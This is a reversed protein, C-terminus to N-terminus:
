LISEGLAKEIEQRAMYFCEAIRDFSEKEHDQWMDPPNNAFDGCYRDIADCEARLIAAGIARRAKATTKPISSKM